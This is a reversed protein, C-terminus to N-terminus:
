KKEQLVGMTMRAAMMMERLRMVRGMRFTCLRGRGGMGRWVSACGRGRSM